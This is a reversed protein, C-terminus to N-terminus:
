SSVTAPTKIPVPTLDTLGRTAEGQGEPYTTGDLTGTLLLTPIATM